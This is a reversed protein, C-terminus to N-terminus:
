VVTGEQPVARTHPHERIIVRARAIRCGYVDEAIIGEQATPVQSKSAEQEMMTNNLLSQAEEQLLCAYKIHNLRLVQTQGAILPRLRTTSRPKSPGGVGELISPTQIKDTGRWGRTAPPIGGRCQGGNLLRLLVLDRLHANTM